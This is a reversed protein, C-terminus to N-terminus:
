EAAQETTSEESATDTTETITTYSMLKDLLKGFLIDSRIEDETYYEMIADKDEYGYEDIYSQIEADYEEDTVTLGEKEVLLDQVCQKKLTDLAYEEMSMAYYEQIFDEVEMGFYSAWEENEVTLNSIEKEVIDQPFEKIQKCNAVVQEWMAQENAEQAESQASEELDKRTQERYEDVTECDTNEKIFEDTLEPIVEKEIANVTVKMTCKKGAVTSDDYDDPFTLDMTVAEGTKAGILNEEFEFGEGLTFEGSGIQTDIDTDSYDENKEGNITCEYDINVFDEDKVTDRDTVKQYEIYDEALYQVQEEVDEDTVESPTGEISLGKYKGLEVYDKANIEIPVTKAVASETTAEAAKDKSSGCGGLMCIATLIAAISIFKKM